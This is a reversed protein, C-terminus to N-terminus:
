GFFGSRRLQEHFQRLTRTKEKPDPIQSVFEEEFNPRRLHKVIIDRALSSARGTPLMEPQVMSLLMHARIHLPREPNNVKDLIKGDVIYSALLDDLRKTLLEKRHDPLQSKEVRYYISTLKQMKKNPPLKERFIHNVSEPRVLITELHLDIDERLVEQGLECELLALLYGTKRGPDNLTPLVSAAAEKMGKQGGKNILTSQRATVAEAMAAGGLVDVDPILKNLLGYFVEREEERDGRSLPNLGELQRKIRDFLVTQSDPLRGESILRSFEFTAFKPHDPHLDEPLEEDSPEGNAFCIMTVLASGLDRQQGILDRQVDANWLVDSIYFDILEFAEPTEISAAWELLLVLKGFYSRTDLLENAIAVRALYTADDGAAMGNVRELVDNLGVDRIRPLKKDAAARAKANIENIYNFLVDRRQNTTVGELKKVQLTAVKAAASSILTGEDLLRKMEKASHMLEGATLNNKDLYARFLQNITMRAPRAFLEEAESCMPAELIHQIFIKDEGKPRLKEFLIDTPALQDLSKSSEKIVRVGQIKPRTLMKAAEAKAAELSTATAEISWAGERMTLIEFTKSGFM